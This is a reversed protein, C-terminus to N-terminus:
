HLRGDVHHICGSSPQEFSEVGYDPRVVLAHRWFFLGPCYRLFFPLYLLFIVLARVAVSLVRISTEGGDVRLTDEIVGRCCFRCSLQILASLIWFVLTSMVCFAAVDLASYPEIYNEYIGGAIVPEMVHIHAGLVLVFSFVLSLVLCCVRGVLSPFAFDKCGLRNFYVLSAIIAVCALVSPFLDFSGSCYTVTVISAALLLVARAVDLLRFQRIM